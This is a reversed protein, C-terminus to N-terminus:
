GPLSGGLTSGGQGQVNGGGALGDVRVGQGPWTGAVNGAGQQGVSVGCGGQTRDAGGGLAACANGVDAIGWRLRLLGK